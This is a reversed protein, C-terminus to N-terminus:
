AREALSALAATLGEETAGDVSSSVIEKAARRDFGNVLLIGGRFLVAESEAGQLTAAVGRAALPERNFEWWREVTAFLVTDRQEAVM